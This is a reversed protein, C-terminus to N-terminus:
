MRFRGVWSEDLDNAKGTLVPATGEEEKDEEGEEEDRDERENGPVFVNVLYLDSDDKEFSVAVLRREDRVLGNGHM